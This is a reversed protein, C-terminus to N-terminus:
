KGGHMITKFKNSTIYLIVTIVSVTIIYVLFDVLLNTSFPKLCQMILHTIVLSVLITFLLYKTM